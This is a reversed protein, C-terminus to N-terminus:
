VTILARISEFTKEGVLGRERLEDVSRFPTEERAAIIKTATVPGIGPLSELQSQSATNLDVLGGSAGGPGAPGGGPRGTGVTADDRSPVHVRAGDTLAEALNLETAVREVDVRPGYGGAASVADGVRTGPTLRYLGPNAVAGSVDVVLVGSDQGPSAVAAAAGDPGAVVRGAGMGGLAIVVAVLGLAIAGVMGLLAIPQIGLTSVAGTAAATAPPVPSSSGPEGTPADFVRWPPSTREV